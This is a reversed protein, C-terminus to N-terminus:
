EHSTRMQQTLVLRSLALGAVAFSTAVLPDDERLDTYANAFSGDPRQRRILAEAMWMPWVIPGEATTITDAGEGWLAHSSAWVWYYYASRRQVERNDPYEGPAREPSYRAALWAHARQRRPHIAPVGLQRLARLGDATMTGYSRTEGEDTVHAKNQVVNSPTFFFGGDGDLNQCREVFQKAAVLAPHSFPLGAMRLAGVAFVTSSLNASLLMSREADDPPRTPHEHFYGWGGYDSDTTKWGNDPGLQFALLHQAIADRVKAHRRNPPTSLVLTAGALAYVPYVLAEPRPQGDDDLLTAVFDSGRRYHEAVDKSPPVFYLASLAMPSLSWGDKFTGYRDSRWAGDEGQRAMLYAGAKALAADIAEVTPAQAAVALTVIAALM